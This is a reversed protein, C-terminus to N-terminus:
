LWDLFGYKPGALSTYLTVSMLFLLREVCCISLLTRKAIQSVLTALPAALTRVLCPVTSVRRTLFHFTNLSFKLDVSGARLLGWFIRLLVTAGLFHQSATMIILLMNNLSCDRPRPRVKCCAKEDCVKYAELKGKAEKDM